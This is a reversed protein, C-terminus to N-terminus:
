SISPDSVTGWFLVASTSEHRVMFLFPRNLIFLKSGGIYELISASVAAAETGKEDVSLHVQQFVNSIKLVDDEVAEKLNIDIKGIADLRNFLRIREELVDFSDQDDNENIMKRFVKDFFRYRELPDIISLTNALKLKPIRVTVSSRKMESLLELSDKINIKESFKKINHEEGNNVHPLFFYMAVEDNIYPLKIAACNLKDSDAYPIDTFTEQMYEVKVKKEATSSFVDIVNREFSFPNEWEAKFYIANTLIASTSPPLPASLISKIVGQTQQNAWNNIIEQSTLPDTSFNLAQVETQYIELNHEFNEKLHLKSNVFLSSSCNLTFSKANNRTELNRVLNGMQSHFKAYPVNFTTNKFGHYRILAHHPNANKPLSLLNYLQQRLEEDAGLMLQSILLAVSLPSVLFNQISNRSSDSLLTQLRVAISFIAELADGFQKEPSVSQQFTSSACILFVLLCIHALNAM